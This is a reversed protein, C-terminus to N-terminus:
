KGDYANREVTMTYIKKWDLTDSCSQTVDTSKRSKQEPKKYHANM